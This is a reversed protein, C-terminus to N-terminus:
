FQMLNNIELAILSLNIKEHKSNNTIFKLIKM